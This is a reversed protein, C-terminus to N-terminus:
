PTGSGPAGSGATSPPGLWVDALDWGGWRPAMWDRVQPSLGYSEPVHVLPIVRYAELPAREADYVDELTKMNAAPEGLPQLLEFLSQAAVPADMRERVMRLDAAPPKAKGDVPQGSVQVVIGAERLNVSVRDAVARAETDSSDYVLVLPSSRSLQRGSAALLDKARPLDFSVPFLHAYGSIWNPLLGAAVAGQGQLIVNAISTRDIALSIAQRARPDQVAPRAADLVLAFLEVPDSSVTRVGRHAARRVQSPPLEVIDAQGFAIADAQQDGNMGITLALKDVYPRGAWCTENADFVMQTAAGMSEILTYRFPGTGVLSGDDGARFIFYRGTALQMPLGVLSQDAGIVVSDSNASVDFSAGLLQQLAMAAVPPTLPTGDSFKVGDRLRFLWRKGQADYQWSVALGPQLTGHGDLRILRDFVLTDLRELAATQAPASPRQRPDLNEVRESMQVRLTGGFRPRVSADVRICLWLSAAALALFAFRGRTSDPAPFSSATRRM